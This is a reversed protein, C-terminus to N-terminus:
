NLLDKIIKKIKLFNDYFVELDGKIKEFSLIFENENCEYMNVKMTCQLEDEENEEEDDFEIIFKLKNESAELYCNEGFKDIIKNVLSNMFRNARRANFDGKIKIYDKFNREGELKKPKLDQKFYLENDDFSSGRVNQNDKESAETSKTSIESTDKIGKEIKGLYHAFENELLKYKNIDNKLWNNIEKFWPDNLIEDIRPRESPEYAVMSLYLNKFEPSLEKKDKFREWYHEYDKNKINNYSKHEANLFGRMGLVLKFLLVGLSFIDADIGNYYVDKEFMQPCRIYPTGIKGTIKNLQGDKDYINQSLGFDNIIPNYKDDLLINADKLDLHCINESHCYKMGELIKKFIIKAYDEGFGNEVNKIYHLLDEKEAYDVIFYNRKMKDNTFFIGSDYLKLVYSNNMKYLKKLIEIEYQFEKLNKESNKEESLVKLAYKKKDEKGRLLYIKGYGGQGIKDKIIYKDNIVLNKYLNEQNDNREM